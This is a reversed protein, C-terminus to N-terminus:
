AVNDVKEETDKLKGEAKMEKMKAENRIRFKKMLKKDEILVQFDIFKKEKYYSTVVDIPVYLEEEHLYILFDIYFNVMEPKSNQKVLEKVFNQLIARPLGTLKSLARYNVSKALTERKSM